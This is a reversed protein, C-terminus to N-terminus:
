TLAPWRFLAFRVTPDAALRESVGREWVLYHEWARDRRAPPVRMVSGWDDEFPTLLQGPEWAQELPLGAGQWGLTGGDLWGADSDPWQERTDRAALRGARGDPSTFVIRKGAEHFARLPELTWPLLFRAGPLHGREFDFSHGVDVIEIPSSASTLLARLHEASIGGSVDAVPPPAEEFHAAEPWRGKFIFVEFQNLQRLWFATIAARLGHPEDFLVIRAHRTGVLNEFHMLLQGGAVARTGPAPEFGTGAGPRLDFLYLSRGSHARMHLLANGDLCPLEFRDILSSARRRLEEESAQPLDVAPQANQVVPAGDLAWQMVGDELFHADPHGLLRLTTTGIIGRTRSFCNLVWPADSTDAPWDRLALETGAHNGAGQVSLYAYEAAPRVDVLTAPRSSAQAARVAAGRLTPTAYHRRVCDGFAKVLAGYGDILPLGAARWGATGGALIRVDMYGLRGLLAAARSGPGQPGGGDVLVVLTGLRPVLAQVELELTSLPAMRSLSLHGAVYARAERVDLLALEDKGLLLALLEAPTITPSPFAHVMPRPTTAEVSEVVECVQPQLSDRM